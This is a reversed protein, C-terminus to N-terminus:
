VQFERLLDKLAQKTNANWDLAAIDRGNENQDSVKRSFLDGLKEDVLPFKGPSSMRDFAQMLTLRSRFATNDRGNLLRASYILTGALGAAAATAVSSGSEYVTPAGDKSIIPVDCGPFLYDVNPEVWIAKDGNFSAAGIRICKNWVGPYSSDAKDGGQDNASCFMLIKKSEALSIATEFEEIGKRLPDTTRITWSM